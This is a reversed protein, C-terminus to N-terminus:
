PKIPLTLVNIDQRSDPNEGMWFTETINFVALSDRNQHPATIHLTNTLFNADSLANLHEEKEATITESFYVSALTDKENLILGSFERDIRAPSATTREEASVLKFEGQKMASVLYRTTTTSDNEIHNHVTDIWFEKNNLPQLAEPLEQRDCSTSLFTLPALTYLLAKKM